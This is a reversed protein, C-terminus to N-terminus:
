RGVFRPWTAVVVAVCVSGRRGRAVGVGGDTFDRELLTMLHSPSQVMAEVAGQMSAARAVTEGARRAVLGVAAIRQAPERGSPGRHGPKGVRCAHFAQRAAVQRLLPNRRLAPRGAAVRLRNLLGSLEETGRVTDLLHEVGRLVGRSLGAVPQIGNVGHALLQLKLSASAIGEIPLEVGQSLQDPTVAFRAFRLGGSQVVLTPRSFNDALMGSLRLRDDSWRHSESTLEISAMCPAALLLSGHAGDARGCHVGAGQSPRVAALFNEVSVTDSGRMWLARVGPMYINADRLAATLMVSSPESRQTVLQAAVEGLGPHQDCLPAHQATAGGAFVACLLLTIAHGRARLGVGVVAGKAQDAGVRVWRTM